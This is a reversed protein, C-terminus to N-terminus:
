SGIASKFEYGSEAYDATIKDEMIEAIVVELDTRGNREVLPRSGNIIIERLRHQILATLKFRGGCKDVIEDSRLAEIM